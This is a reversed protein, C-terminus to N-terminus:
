EASMVLKTLRIKIPDFVASKVIADFAKSGEINKVLLIQFEPGFDPTTFLKYLNPLQAERIGKTRLVHGVAFTLAYVFGVDTNANMAPIEGRQVIANVDVRRYVKVFHAFETAAAAGVCSAVLARRQDPEVAM